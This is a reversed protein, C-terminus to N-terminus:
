SSGFKNQELFKLLASYRSSGKAFLEGILYEDEFKNSSGGLFARVRDLDLWNRFDEKEYDPLILLEHPAFQAFAPSAARANAYATQMRKKVDPRRLLKDQWSPAVEEYRLLLVLIVPKLPVGIEGAFALKSLWTRATALLSEIKQSEWSTCDNAHWLLLADTQGAQMQQMLAAEAKVACAELMTKAFRDLSEFGYNQKSDVVKLRTDPLKEQLETKIRALLKGPRNHIHDAFCLLYMPLESEQHLLKELRALIEARDCWALLESLQESHPRAPPLKNPTAEPAPAPAHAQIPAAETRPDHGQKAHSADINGIQTHAINGAVIVQGNITGGSIVISQASPGMSQREHEASPELLPVNKLAFAVFEAANKAALAQYEKKNEGKKGDAWDCIAKVMIWDTKANQSATYLGAAEMEGGIAEPALELLQTRFALNDVLKEGSLILGFDLKANNEDWLLEAHKLFEILRPTAHAKDGRSLTENAGVRQLDYLLVQNAILVEGITQKQQNIGFAIGVMIVAGPKIAAIAKSVTAQAGGLGGAGMESLALYIDAGQLHGLFQYNSADRMVVKAAVGTAAQMATLVARSETKTVTVLLVAPHNPNEPPM